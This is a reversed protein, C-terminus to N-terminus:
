VPEEVARRAAKLNARPTTIQLVCGTGLLFRKGETMEIADRAQATVTEPTGLVMRERQLGGCVVGPYRQQAEALSPSTDRDHWNICAMPYHVFRDFMVEEGHLHLMNFWLSRAPELVKRDYTEGFETYEAETLLGYNAHQVAYFVGAIGMQRAAELFRITTEAIVALAAHVEQAHRRLHVILNAKGVLNKAQSLPSFITQLVPTNPGLERTILGLAELQRALHPASPDLVRLRTWDEASQIVDHTYTRTGESDGHWEDRSGWDKLCFSSTPTVKVLDFDYTRQWELTAAALGDSTQDDVPFHRWLAVPTRDPKKGSLCTELRQRSTIM